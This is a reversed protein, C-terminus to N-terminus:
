KVVLEIIESDCNPKIRPFDTSDCKSIYVCQIVANYLLLNM